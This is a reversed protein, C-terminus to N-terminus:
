VTVLLNKGLSYTCDSRLQAAAMQRERSTPLASVAMLLGALLVCVEDTM